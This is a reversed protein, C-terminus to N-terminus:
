NRGMGPLQAKAGIKEDCDVCRLDGEFLELSGLAGCEPCREGLNKKSEAVVRARELEAKAEEEIQGKPARYDDGKSM